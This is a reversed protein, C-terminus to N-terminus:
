AAEIEFYRSELVLITDNNRTTIGIPIASDFVINDVYERVSEEWERKSFRLILRGGVIEVLLEGQTQSEIRLSRSYFDEKPSFEKKLTILVIM